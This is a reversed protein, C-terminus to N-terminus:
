CSKTVDLSCEYMDVVLVRVTDCCLVFSQVLDFDLLHLLWEHLPYLLLKLRFGALSLHLTNLLPKPLILKAANIPRSSTPNYFYMGTTHDHM